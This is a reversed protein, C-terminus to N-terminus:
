GLLTLAPNITIVALGSATVTFYDVLANAFTKGSPPTATPAVSELAGTTNDYFVYDGVNATNPLTVIMSGMSVLEAQIQNPLVLTPSLPAGNVGYLAYVKPDALIGAYGYNSSGNGAQAVGQSLVTYATAGIVNYSAEASDLIFSQSRYPQDTFLEGPVGFGQNVYVTSQFSATM